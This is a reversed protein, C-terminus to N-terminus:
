YDPISGDTVGKVFFAIEEHTLQENERKKHIIDVMRM